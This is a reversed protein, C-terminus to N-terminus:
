VIAVICCHCAYHLIKADTVADFDGEQVFLKESAGRCHLCPRDGNSRIPLITSSTPTDAHHQIMSTDIGLRKFTNTIYDSAEDEGMSCDALVNAGLKAANMAAGGLTGAPSMTMEELYAIGGGEPITDVSRGLVDLTVFGVISADYKPM